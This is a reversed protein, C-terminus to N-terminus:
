YSFLNNNTERLEICRDITCIRNFIEKSITPYEVVGNALLEKSFTSVQKLYSTSYCENYAYTDGIFGCYASLWDKYSNTKLDFAKTFKNFNRELQVQENPSYYLM